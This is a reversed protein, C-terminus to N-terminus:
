VSRAIRKTTRLEHEDNSVNRHDNMKLDETSQDVATFIDIAQSARGSILTTM